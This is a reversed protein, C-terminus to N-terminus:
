QRRDIINRHDPRKVRVPADHHKARQRRRKDSGHGADFAVLPHQEGDGDAEHQDPHRAVDVHAGEFAGFITGPAVKRHDIAFGTVVADGGGETLTGLKM